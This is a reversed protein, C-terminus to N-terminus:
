EGTAIPSDLASLLRGASADNPNARLAAGYSMRADAPRLLEQQVMGLLVYTESSQELSLATDLNAEAGDLDGARKLVLARLVYGEARRPAIAIIRSAAQRVRPMDRLVYSVHGLTIWAGVDSAGEQDKTLELLIQRAEVPRDLQVLCSARMQLLDRRGKNEEARLLHSLNYDADAFRSTAVQARVLDELIHTDDPSLMRAEAFFTVAQEPENKMLAIHGLTQRIGANHDFGDGRGAIYTEAETIQNLEIMMEAAAIVYQPNTRDLEAAARYHDMAVQKQDIREALIGQYYAAEVCAPDLTQATRLCALSGEINGMEMLTRGRLIHSRAVKGNLSISHDAHKLAKHLDGALFAQQGMQYETASKLAEMKTKAASSQASTYKGNGGCGISALCMVAAATAVAGVRAAQGLVGRGLARDLSLHNLIKM